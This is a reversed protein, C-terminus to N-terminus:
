SRSVTPRLSLLVVAIKKEAMIKQAEKPTGVSYIRYDSEVILSKIKEAGALDSDIVLVADKKNKQVRDM